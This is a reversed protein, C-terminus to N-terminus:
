AFWDISSSAEQPVFALFTCLCLLKAENEVRADEQFVEIVDRVVTTPDWTPMKCALASTALALQTLTTRLDVARSANSEDHACSSSNVAFRMTLKLVSSRLDIWDRETFAAHSAQTREEKAVCRRLLVHLTRACFLTEVATADDRELVRLLVSWSGDSKSFSSLAAEANARESADHSQFFSAIHARLIDEDM